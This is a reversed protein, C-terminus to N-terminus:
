LSNADAPLLRAFHNVIVVSGVFAHPTIHFLNRHLRALMAIDTRQIAPNAWKGADVIAIGVNAARRFAFADVHRNLARGAIYDFDRHQVCLIREPTFTQVCLNQHLDMVFQQHFTRGTLGLVHLYTQAPAFTPDVKRLTGGRAVAYDQWGLQGVVTDGPAFRPDSSDVVEGVVQGTMPEGIETPKAYSRAKSMRGRMYPDVSLWQSHM